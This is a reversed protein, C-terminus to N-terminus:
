RITAPLRRSRGLRSRPLRRPAPSPRSLATSTTPPHSSGSKRVEQRMLLMVGIYALPFFSAGLYNALVPTPPNANHIGEYTMAFDGLAWLCMGTGLALCFGRDKPSVAARVLVLLSALLEYSATGWGDLWDTSAGNARVILSVAYGILILGLLCYFAKVGGSAQEPSEVSPRGPRSATSRPRLSAKNESVTADLHGM